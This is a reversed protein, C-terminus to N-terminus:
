CCACFRLVKRRLYIIGRSAKRKQYITIWNECFLFVVKINILVGFEFVCCCVSYRKKEFPEQISHIFPVGFLLCVWAYVFRCLTLGMWSLSVDRCVWALVFGNSVVRGLCGVWHCVYWYTVSGIVFGGLSLGLGVVLWINLFGKTSDAKLSNSNFYCIYLSNLNQVM